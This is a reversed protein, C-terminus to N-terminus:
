RSYGEESKEEKSKEEKNKEEESTYKKDEKFLQVVTSTKSVGKTEQLEKLETYVSIVESKTKDLAKSLSELRYILLPSSDLRQQLDVYKKRQIRLKSSLLKYKRELTEAQSISSSGLM